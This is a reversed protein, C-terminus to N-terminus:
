KSVLHTIDNQKKLTLNECGQLLNMLVENHTTVFVQREKALEVIMNYVYPIGAKDIGGGTIEDLFVISPCRGSNLMMVYAFSQSVALNIRRIEGNSMNHYFATNGNRTITEELKNDFTLEILGDILIQMWYAVRENLAPIIGDIVFKRIGDDGFAENWFDYYPLEQEAKELEKAKEQKENEKQSKEIKSKEIIEKYPSDGEYEEKKLKFQKKLEVIETELIKTAVDGEPKPIKSLETIESRHSRLTNEIVKVKEEAEDIKEETQSILKSKHGYSDRLENIQNEKKDITLRHKDVSEKGCDVVHGFNLRSIVGRCTPCVTGEKLNELDNILKNAKSLEAQANKLVISGEQISQNIDDREKRVSELKERASKIASLVKNRKSELTLLEESLHNIRDQSEQWNTLQNGTDSNALDAQKAKIQSMLIKLENQKNNKWNTEQNTFDNTRRECSEVESQLFSYEKSLDAIKKKLDKQIEKCNNQYNRYQELDLLNEVIQRKTAADAELFSYSNSDDFIVVNCFAHHSLGIKEEIFKQSEDSTSFTIKSEDDWVRDPNQWIEISSTVSTKTKKFYRVVRFDDWQVEVEGKQALVNVIKNGKNKTPSKVTRGYLAISLLEQISSKGTGNSAPNEETGPADLNIGHVQVINGYKSFSIEVGDPGFCLINEARISHFKLNRM